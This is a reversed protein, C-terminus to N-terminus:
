IIIMGIAIIFAIFFILTIILMSFISHNFKTRVQWSNMIVDAQCLYDAAKELNKLVPIHAMYNEHLFGTFFESSV